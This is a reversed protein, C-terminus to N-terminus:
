EWDCECEGECKYVCDNEAEQPSVTVRVSVSTEICECENASLGVRLGQSDIM